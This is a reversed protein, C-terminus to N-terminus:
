EESPGYLRLVGDLVGSLGLKPAATETYMNVTFYRKFETSNRDFKILGYLLRARPEECFTGSQACATYLEPLM